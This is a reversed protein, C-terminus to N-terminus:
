EKAANILNKVDNNDLYQTIELLCPNNLYLESTDNKITSVSLKDLETYLKFREASESIFKVFIEGFVPICEIQKKINEPFCNIRYNNFKIRKLIEPLPVEDFIISKIKNICELCEEVYKMLVCYNEYRSFNLDVDDRFISQVLKDTINCRAKIKFHDWAFQYTISTRYNYVVSSNVGFDCDYKFLEEIVDCQDTRIALSLATENARDHSNVDAGFSLLVRVVQTGKMKAVASHLATRDDLPAIDVLAGHLLLERTMEATPALHLYSTPEQEDMAGYNVDCGSALLQKVRSLNNIKVSEELENQKLEQIELYSSSAIDEMTLYSKIFCSVRRQSDVSHRIGQM